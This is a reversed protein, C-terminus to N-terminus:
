FSCIASMSLTSVPKSSDIGIDVQFLRFAVGFGLAVHVEDHGPPHLAAKFPDDGVYRTRHNPDLWAGLRFAIVPDSSLIVYEGGLHVEDGDDLAMDRFGASRAMESYEIRDWELALTLSGDASRHSLGMGYVDPFQMALGLEEFPESGITGTNSFRARPGERYFGGVHITPTVSWLFGGILGESNSNARVTQSAIRDGSLYPNVGYPDAPPPAFLATRGDVVVTFRSVGVGVDFREGLRYAASLGYGVIDFSTETRQDAYRDGCCTGVSGFLGQTDGSFRFSALQHRYFAVAWRKRPVVVSVFSVADVSETSIDTRLGRMTDLSIGSPIGDLRDSKTFETSYSWHRFEVSLEPRVIQILGSPNAFAATADDALAAFAGGFGMSRAGPNSYSLEFVVGGEPEVQAFLPVAAILVVTALVLSSRTSFAHARGSKM